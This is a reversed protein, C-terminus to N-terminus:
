PAGQDSEIGVEQLSRHVKATVMEASDAETMGCNDRLLDPIPAYPMHSGYSTCRGTLYTLRRGALSCSFEYVLRSKGMGPEGVIGVVQGRGSEIHDLVAHLTTLERERGVFRSLTREGRQVVPSRRQARGLIKYAIVSTAHGAVSVPQIAELLITGRVLRATADSCLITGPPAMEQLATVLLTAEGVVLAAPEPDSGM